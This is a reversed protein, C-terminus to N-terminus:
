EELLAGLRLPDFLDIGEHLDERQKRHHGRRPGFIPSSTRPALAGLARTTDEAAIIDPGPPASHASLWDEQVLLATAGSEIAKDLFGHADYNQGRIAIFLEGPRTSRTDISAGSLITDPSGATQEGGTWSEVEHSRFPVRSM